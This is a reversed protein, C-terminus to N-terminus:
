AALWAQEGRQGARAPPGAQSLVKANKPAASIRLNLAVAAFFRHHVHDQIDPDIEPPGGPCAESATWRGADRHRDFPARFPEERLRQYASLGNDYSIVDFGANQLRRPGPLPAHRYRREAFFFRRWHKRSTGLRCLRRHGARVRDGLGQM